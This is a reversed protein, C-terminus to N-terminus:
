EPGGILEEPTCIIPCEYGCDHVVKTIRQKMLANNIHVFRDFREAIIPWCERTIEQRGAVVLDRSPRGTFYSVVSTEIYVTEVISGVRETRESVLRIRGETILEMM